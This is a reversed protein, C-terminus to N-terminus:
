DDFGLLVDPRADYVRCLTVFVELSPTVHGNEYRSLQSQDVGAKNMVDPQSYGKRTRAARLRRAFDTRMKVVPVADFVSM